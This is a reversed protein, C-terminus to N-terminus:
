RTEVSDGYVRAEAPARSRPSIRTGGKLEGFCNGEISRCELVMKVVLFGLFQNM